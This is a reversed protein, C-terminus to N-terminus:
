GRGRHLNRAILDTGFYTHGGTLQQEEQESLGVIAGQAVATSLVLKQQQPPINKKEM